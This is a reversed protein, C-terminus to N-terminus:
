EADFIFVAIKFQSEKMDLFVLRDGGDGTIIVNGGKEKMHDEVLDEFDDVGDLSTLDVVDHDAGRADFDKCTDRGYMDGFFVTDNGTGTYIVDSGERGELTDDGTGGYLYDDGYEGILHDNGSGGMLRDDDDNGLIVDNGALGKYVDPGTTGGFFDDGPSGNARDIVFHRSTRFAISRMIM